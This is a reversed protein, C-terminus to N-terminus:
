FILISVDILKFGSPRSLTNDTNETADTVVPLIKLESASVNLSKEPPNDTGTPLDVNVTAASSTIPPDPLPITM